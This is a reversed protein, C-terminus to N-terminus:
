KATHRAWVLKQVEDLEDLSPKLTQFTNCLGVLHDGSFSARLHKVDSQVLMQLGKDSVVKKIATLRKQLLGKNQENDAWEWGQSMSLISSLMSDSKTTIAIYRNKLKGM